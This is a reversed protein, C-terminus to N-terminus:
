FGGVISTLSVEIENTDPDIEEITPTQAKGSTDYTRAKIVSITAVGSIPAPVEWEFSTDDPTSLTFTTEFSRGSKDGDVPLNYRARIQAKSVEGGELSFTYSRNGRGIGCRLNITPAAMNAIDESAFAAEDAPYHITGGGNKLILAVRYQLPKTVKSGIPAALTAERTDSTLSIRRTFAGDYAVTVQAEETVGWPLDHGSLKAYVVGLDTAAFLVQYDNDSKLGTVKYPATGDTYTVIYSYELADTQQNRADFTGALTAPALNEDSARFQLSHVEKGEADSLSAGGYSIKSINLSDVLRAALVAKAPPSVVLDLNFYPRSNLDVTAFFQSLDADKPLLSKVMPLQGQPRVTSNIAQSLKFTRTQDQLSSFTTEGVSADMDDFKFQPLQSQIMSELQKQAWEQLSDQISKAGEAKLYTSSPLNISVADKVTQSYTKSVKDTKEHGWTDKHREQVLSMMTNHSLTVVAEAAPLVADFGVSYEVTVVSSQLDVDYGKPETGQKFNPGGLAFWFMAAGKENLDYSIVAANSNLFSPTVEFVRTETPSADGKQWSKYINPDGFAHVKVTGSTVPVPKIKLSADTPLFQKYDKAADYANLYLRVQADTLGLAKAIEQQDQPGSQAMELIKRARTSLDANRGIAESFAKKVTADNLDPMPLAVTCTCVGGTLKDGFYWLMSFSPAGTTPNPLFNPQNPLLYYVDKDDSDSYLTYEALLANGMQDKYPGPAKATVRSYLSLM